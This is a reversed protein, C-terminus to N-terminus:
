EYVNYEEKILFETLMSPSPLIFADSIALKMSCMGGIMTLLFQAMALPNGARFVGDTQGRTILDAIQNYFIYNAELMQQRGTHNKYGEFTPSLIHMFNVFENDKSIDGLIETVWMKIATLPEGGFIVGVEKLGGIASQVLAMFIDDKTKYHRYLLGVSIGAM